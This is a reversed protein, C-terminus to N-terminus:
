RENEIYNKNNIKEIVNDLQKYFEEKTGNNYLINVFNKGQPNITLMGNENESLNKINSLGYKEKELDKKQTKEIIEQLSVTKGEQLLKFYERIVRNKFDADIYLIQMKNGLLKKLIIASETKRLTDMIIIPSNNSMSVSTNIYERWFKETSDDELSAFNGIIDRMKLHKVNSFKQELYKAAGSKGSESPGTVFIFENNM